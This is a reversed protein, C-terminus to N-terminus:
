PAPVFASPCRHGHVMGRWELRRPRWRANQADGATRTGALEQKNNVAAGAKAGTRSRSVFPERVIESPYHDPVPPSAPCASTKVATGSPSPPTAPPHTRHARAGV